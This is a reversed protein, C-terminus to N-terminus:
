RPSGRGRRRRAQEAGLVAVPQQPHQQERRDRQDHEVVEAGAHADDGLLAERPQDTVRVPHPKAGDRDADQNEGVHAGRAGLEGPDGGAELQEADGAVGAHGGGGQAYREEHQPPTEM